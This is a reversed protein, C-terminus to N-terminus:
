YESRRQPLSRLFFYETLETVETVILRSMVPAKSVAAHHFCLVLVSGPSTGRDIIWDRQKDLLHAGVGGGGGGSICGSSLIFVFTLMTFVELNFLLPDSHKILM